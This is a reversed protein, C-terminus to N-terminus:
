FEIKLGAMCGIGNRYYYAYDFMQQNLLNYGDVFLEVSSSARFSIGAGLNFTTPATFAEYIIEGSEISSWRRRGTLDGTVYFKWRKVAYRVDVGGRMRADDVVVDGTSNEAHAAFKAAITLGGVPRYELEAGFVFRNNNATAVGFSGVENIYWLVQDRMINAGVYARYAFRSAFAVGAVGASINYSLTNPMALLSECSHDYDLFPNEKYLQALDNQSVSTNIDVYPQVAELGFDFDLRVKPLIYHSVKERDRVRDYLYGLSADVAVLGFDRAYQATAGFRIDRYSSSLSQWMDYEAKLGVINQSFDRMLLASAGAKFQPVAIFVDAQPPPTHSWFGGHAEVNFNLRSLDAFNDGYRLAVDADHFYLRSPNDLTAYRNYIDFDYDISGEFMQCGAVAGGNISVSNRMDYSDAISRVVGASNERASFSGDHDVDVGIYGVRLNQSMYRLEADSVLPYGSALRTYFHETRNFDWYGARAPKFNHDALKIQWTDPHINYIIDPEIESSESISAPVDLKTKPTIEPTYITTVEVRKHEQASLSVVSSLGVCLLLIHILKLEKMVM